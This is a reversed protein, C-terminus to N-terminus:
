HLFTYLQVDEFPVAPVRPRMAGDQSQRVESQTETETKKPSPKNLLVKDLQPRTWVITRRVASHRDEFDNASM